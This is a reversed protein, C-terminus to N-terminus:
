RRKLLDKEVKLLLAFAVKKKLNGVPPWVRNWTTKAKLKCSETIYRVHHKTIHTAQKRDNESGKCESVRWARIKNKRLFFNWSFLDDKVKPQILFIYTLTRYLTSLWKIDSTIIMSMAPFPNLVQNLAHTMKIIKIWNTIWPGLKLVFLSSHVFLYLSIIIM